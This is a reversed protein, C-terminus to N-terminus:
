PKDKMGLDNKEKLAHRLDANVRRLKEMLEIRRERLRIILYSLRRLEELNDM